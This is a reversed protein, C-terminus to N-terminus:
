VESFLLIVHYNERLTGPKGSLIKDPVKSIKIRNRDPEKIIHIDVVAKYFGSLIRTCVYKQIKIQQIWIGSLFRTPDPLLHVKVKVIQLDVVAKYFGYLIRTSVYKRIKIEPDM